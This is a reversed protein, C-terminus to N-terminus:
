FSFSEKFYKLYNVTLTISLWAMKYEIQFHDLNTTKLIIVVIFLLNFGVINIIYDTVRSSTNLEMDLKKFILSIWKEPRLFTDESIFVLNFELNRSSGAGFIGDFAFIEDDVDSGVCCEPRTRGWCRGGLNSSSPLFHTISFWRFLPFKDILFVSM